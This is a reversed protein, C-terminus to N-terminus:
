NPNQFNGKLGSVMGWHKKGIGIISNEFYELKSSAIDRNQISCKSKPM